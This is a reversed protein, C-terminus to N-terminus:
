FSLFGLWEISSTWGEAWKQRTLSIGLLFSALLYLIWAGMFPQLKEYHVELALLDQRGYKIPFKQRLQGQFSEVAAKLGGERYGEEGKKKKVHAIHTAAYSIFHDVIRYFAKSEEGKLESVSLWHDSELQPVMRPIHGKAIGVFVNIQNELTQVAQFYPNLKEGSERRSHLEQSLLPFKPNNVLTLPSFYIKQKDELGLAERLGSHRVQIIEQSDWEGPWLMWMMVMDVAEIKVKEKFERGQSDKRLLTKKFKERGYVLQLTERAFTDFPKVRGEQPDQIPLHRLAERDESALTSGCSLLCLVLTVCTLLIWASLFRFLLSEDVRVKPRLMTPAQGKSSTTPAQVEPSITPAQGEPSITPAM